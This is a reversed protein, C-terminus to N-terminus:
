NSEKKVDSVECLGDSLKIDLIKITQYKYEPITKVLEYENLQYIDQKVQFYM